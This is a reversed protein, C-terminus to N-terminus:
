GALNSFTFFTVPSPGGGIARYFALAHLDDNDAPVFVDDIGTAAAATRLTEVLQRGVGMRQYEPRVAIDYIFVESSAERTMPLTHATLGGIPQGEEFAALVWFDDRVLLRDVYDDSLSEHAEEFILAMMAIVSRASERDDPGLRRVNM